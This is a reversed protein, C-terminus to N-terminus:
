VDRKSSSNSGDIIRGDEDMLNADMPKAPEGQFHYGLVERRQTLKDIGFNLMFKTYKMAGDKFADKGYRMGDPDERYDWIGGIPVGQKIKLLSTLHEILIGCADTSVTVLKTENDKNAKLEEIFAEIAKLEDEEHVIVELALGFPHLVRRNIEFLLGTDMLYQGPEAIRKIEESM